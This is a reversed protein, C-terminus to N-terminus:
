KGEARQEGDEEGKRDGEEGIKRGRYGGREREGM